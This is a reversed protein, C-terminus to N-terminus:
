LFLLYSELIVKKEKDLIYRPVNIVELVVRKGKRRVTNGKLTPVDNGFIRFCRDADAVTVSYNLLM